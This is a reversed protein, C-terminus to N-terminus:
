SLEIPTPSPAMVGHALTPSTLAVEDVLEVELVAAALEAPEPAVAVLAVGVAVARVVVTEVVGALPMEGTM